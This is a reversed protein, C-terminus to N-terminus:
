NVPTQHSLSATKKTEKPLQVHVFKIRTQSLGIAVLPQYLCAGLCFPQEGIDLVSLLDGTRINYLRLFNDGSCCVVSKDDLFKCDVIDNQQGHFVHLTEGTDANLIHLGHGQDLTNWTVVFENRPSCLLHSEIICDIWCTTREWVILGNKRLSLKVNEFLLVGIDEEKLTCLLVQSPDSFSVSLIMEDADLDAKLSSVIRSGASTVDLVDIVWHDQSDACWEDIDNPWDESNDSGENELDESLEYFPVSYCCAIFVESITYVKEYETVKPLPRLCTSMDFSWLEAVRDHKRLMVGDRTPFISIPGPFIKTSLLENNSMRFVTLTLNHHLSESESTISYIADGELSFAIKVVVGGNQLRFVEETNVMAVYKCAPSGVLASENNLRIYAGAYLFKSPMVRHVWYDQMTLEWYGSEWDSTGSSVYPWLRFAEPQVSDFVLDSNVTLFQPRDCFLRKYAGCEYEVTFGLFGCVLTNETDPTFHMLGCVVSETRLIRQVSENVRDFIVIEFTVQSLAVQSGDESITFTAIDEDAVINLVNEGNVINWLAVEKPKNPRDTLVEKKDKCFVFNSFICDSSPFLDKRDGDLTYVFQLTGALVSEGNPHFTVSRYYSLSNNGVVRYASDDPYGSYFEKKTLTPRVWIKNGTLLSWLCITGDRCECILYDMEPSVDFCVIKDSCYFRAKDTRRQDENKFHKMYPIKPTSSELIVAALSSLEPIGENILCQFLLHPHDVLIYFHKKLLSLLSTVVFEREVSLLSCSQSQLSLLDETAFTSKVKLKAYVLELDTAYKYVQEVRVSNTGTADACDHYNVVQLMHQTGHHLAYSETNTFQRDHVGKRQLNDLESACLDSLVYHGEKEDVAFDHQEYPLSAILWDKISKHFFHLRGERVPLLTSICSIAKKVKRKRQATLSKGGPNLIKAIFEVPLPERAAALACLFRLFHEEDAHLEKCLENELRKFYSLYVSSIGSPLVSELQDPTLVSVNKQIFDVIYYAYIFLGESKKVLEKLLIDKHKEGIKNSLQNEFSTQIDNLNEERKQKLEIPELHRLVEAISREPRTTILIRMWVPLMPFHNSIVHLLENRGQYESEDLGDIVILTNRGPDQVTSLPEKFLLAFLEEVGMNNLDKGLNRSLQELLTDKYSPMAQCLHCALSQLMLRPDRYRSNNHQCFHSGSLRGVTQMRQSVVASIVTKGMGPNGSIVMVRHRSSRDDLWDKISEFIWERTGEQFKNAHFEIDGKFESKVLTKLVEDAHGNKRKTLGKVEQKVEQISEHMVDVAHITKSQSDCVKDLRLINEQHAENTAQHTAYVLQSVEDLKSKSDLLIKEGKLEVRLVEEAVDQTKCQTESFKLQRQHIDKLQAKIDEESGAWEILADLYDEEGGQEAKLRNVEAQDLGLCILATSIEHWFTSFSTADVGSSTVHGYLENRFFKVRALNAELSNDGPSPKTHWGTLPPSLGCINTLLLFLLTIDFTNSDPVGGGPPFLKDWQHGNLVRRRLLNNLISYDTNLGSALNAPPHYRDFVNRLVTTGGDILLRSLKNGNTKAPSSALPATAM